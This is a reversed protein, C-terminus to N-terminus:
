TQNKKKYEAIRAILEEMSIELGKCVELLYIYTPNFRGKEAKHISQQDKFIRLGLKSQSLKREERLERIVLGLIKLEEAKDM